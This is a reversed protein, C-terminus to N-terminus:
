IYMDRMQVFREDMNTDLLMLMTQRERLYKIFMNGVHVIKEEIEREKEKEVSESKREHLSGANHRDNQYNWDFIFM